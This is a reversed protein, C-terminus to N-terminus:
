QVQVPLMFTATLLVLVRRVNGHQKQLHCIHHNQKDHKSVVHLNNCAGSGQTDSCGATSAIVCVLLQCHNNLMPLLLGQLRLETCCLGPHGPGPCAIYSSHSAQAAMCTPSTTARPAAMGLAFQPTQQWSPHLRKPGRLSFSVSHPIYLVWCSQLTGLMVTISSLRIAADTDNTCSLLNTAPMCM